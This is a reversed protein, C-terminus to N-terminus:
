PNTSNPQKGVVGEIFFHDTEDKASTSWTPKHRQPDFLRTKETISLRFPGNSLERALTAYANRAAAPDEDGTAQWSVSGELRVSWRGQKPANKDGSFPDVRRVHLKTLLLEQPFVGSLYSLFIAPIPPLQKNKIFNALKAEEHLAKFGKDLDAKQIRLDGLKQQFSLVQRHANYVRMEVSLSVAISAVSLVGLVSTTIINQIRRGPAQQQQRTILNASMRPPFSAVLLPWSSSAVGSAETTIPASVKEKMATAAEDAGNGVLHIRAIDAGFQQRIFVTSRNIQSAVRDADSEWSYHLSRTLYLEGDKRGAVLSTTGQIEVALLVTEQEDMQLDAILPYFLASPATLIILHLGAAKTATILATRLSEPLLYLIVSNSGRTPHGVHYSWAAKEEFIKLSDVQREIFLDLDRGTAPPTEQLQQTLKAHELVIALQKGTYDTQKIAESILAQLVAPDESDVQQEPEWTAVPQGRSISVFRVKGNLWTFVLLDKHM